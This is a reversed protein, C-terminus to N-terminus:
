IVNLIEDLNQSEFRNKSYKICNNSMESLDSDSLALINRASQSIDKRNINLGVKWKEVIEWNDGGGTNIYPLGIAMYEVSKLSMTSHIEAKPLNIGMNCLSYIDKKKKEDMVVGHPYCHIGATKAKSLLEELNQGAGIIHLDVVKNNAILSLLEVLLNIDTIHNINGLYCFSISKEIDFSYKPLDTAVIGPLYLNARIQPWKKKAAEIFEKSVVVVLNGKEINKDRLGSWISLFPTLIKRKIGKLPLSEPWMDYGDFIVKCGSKNKYRVVFSILSNPPFICYIIDPKVKNLYKFTGWAFILQSIIRSISINRKYKPVSIQITNPYNAKYYSKEFHNFNSTIYITHIGKSEYFDRVYKIRTDFYNFCSICVCTKQKKNDTSSM